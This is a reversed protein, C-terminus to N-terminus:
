LLARMRHTHGRPSVRVKLQDVPTLTTSNAVGGCMGALAVHHLQPEASRGQLSTRHCVLPPPPPPCTGHTPAARCPSVRLMAPWVCKVFGYVGFATSKQLSVGLM